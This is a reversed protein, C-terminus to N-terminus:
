FPRGFPRHHRHFDMDPGCPAKEHKGPGCPGPGFPGHHGHFGHHGHHGHPGGPCDPEEGATAELHASLKDALACFAEAEEDTFCASFEEAHKKMNEKLDAAATKGEETLLVKAARKDEESTQRTVLGHEEMKGLLESLSSPRVDLIECLERSTAGDNDALVSLTRAVPPPFEHGGKPPRRRMARALKLTSKIVEKREM